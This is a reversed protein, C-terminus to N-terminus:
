APPEQRGTMIDMIPKGGRKVANELVAAGDSNITVPKDTLIACGAKHMADLYYVKQDNRGAFVAIDVIKAEAAAVAKELFDEGTYVHYIWDTPEDARENFANVLKMYNDLDSGAESFIYVDRSLDAHRRRLILGAHFHGPNVIVLTHM